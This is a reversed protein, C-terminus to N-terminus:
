KFYILRRLVFCRYTTMMLFSFYFIFVQFVIAIFFNINENFYKPTTGERTKCTYNYSIAHFNNKKLFFKVHNNMFGYLGTVHLINALTILQIRLSVAETHIPHVAFLIGALLGYKHQLGAVSICLRAFLISCLSHLVVNIVHFWVPQLGFLYHNMRSFVLSFIYFIRIIFNFYCKLISM